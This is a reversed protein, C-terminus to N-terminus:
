SVVTPLVNHTELKELNQLLCIPRIFDGTIDVSHELELLAIDDVKTQSSYNEHVKFNTINVDTSESVDNVSPYLNSAGLRVFDPRTLLNIKNVPDLNILSLKSTRM